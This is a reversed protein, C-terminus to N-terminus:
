QVPAVRTTPQETSLTKEHGALLKDAFKVVPDAFIIKKAMRGIVTSHPRTSARHDAQIRARNGRAHTRERGLKGTKGKPQVLTLQPAGYQGIHTGLLATLICPALRSISVGVYPEVEAFAHARCGGSEYVFQARGHHPQHRVERLDRLLTAGFFRQCRERTGRRAQSFSRPSRSTHRLHGCSGGICAARGWPHRGSWHRPPLLQHFRDVRIRLGGGPVRPEPDQQWLTHVASSPLPLGVGLAPQWIELEGRM